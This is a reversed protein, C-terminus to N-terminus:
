EDRACRFGITDGTETPPVPFRVISAAFNGTDFWSGGRVVKTDGSRPGGTDAASAGLYYDADYWDEIWEWVNGGMDYVGWPSRGNAYSGVPAERGYGDDANRSAQEEPCRQDCYNLAQSDFKLGWPYLWKEETEVVWSAAMEWEAETPLHAGRWHCYADAGYWNVGTVPYNAFGPSLTYLGDNVKIRSDVQNLCPYGNCATEPDTIQTLFALFDANTVEYMDIYFPSVLVLHAPESSRFWDRQCGARFQRCEQLLLQAEGGM